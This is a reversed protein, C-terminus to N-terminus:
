QDAEEVTHMDQISAPLQSMIAVNIVPKDANTGINLLAAARKQVSEAIRERKELDRLPLENPPLNSLANVSAQIDSALQDRVLEAISEISLAGAKVTEKPKAVNKASWGEAYARRTIRSISTNSAKAIENWTYGEARM